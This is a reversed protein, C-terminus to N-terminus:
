NFMPCSPTVYIYVAVEQFQKM